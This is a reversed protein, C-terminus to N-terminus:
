ARHRWPTEELRPGSVRYRTLTGDLTRQLVEMAREAQKKPGDIKFQEHRHAIGVQLGAEITRLHEDTPGCLHSLRTNNLPSFLHRLIVSIIGTPPDICSEMIPLLGM